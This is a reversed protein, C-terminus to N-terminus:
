EKKNKEQEIDWKLSFMERETRLKEIEARLNALEHELRLRILSNELELKLLEKKKARIDAKEEKKNSVFEEALVEEEADLAATDRGNVNKKSISKEQDAIEKGQRDAREDAVIVAKSGAALLITFFLSRPVRLYKEM